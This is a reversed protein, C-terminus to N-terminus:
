YLLFLKQDTKHRVLMFRIMHCSELRLQLSFGCNGRRANNWSCAPVQTSGANKRLRARFSGWL